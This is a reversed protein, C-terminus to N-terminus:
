VYEEGNREEPPDRGSKTEPRAETSPQSSSTRDAPFYNIASRRVANCLSVTDNRQNAPSDRGQADAVDRGGRARIIAVDHSRDIADRTKESLRTTPL